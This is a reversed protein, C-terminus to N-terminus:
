GIGLLIQLGDWAAQALAGIPHEVFKEILYVLTGFAAVKLTNENVRENELIKLTTEIDTLRREHEEIDSSRYENNSEIAGKLEELSKIVDHYGPSNHDLAVTRDSAPVGIVPIGSDDTTTDDLEVIDFLPQAYDTVGGLDELEEAASLGDGTLAASLRGDEGGGMTFADQIYGMDRLQYAAKRVWGPKYPIGYIEAIDKLEFYRTASEKEDEKALVILIEDKFKTFRIPQDDASNPRQLQEALRLLEATVEFVGGEEDDIARTQRLLGQKM